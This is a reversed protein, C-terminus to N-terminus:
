SSGIALLMAPYFKTDTALLHSLERRCASERISSAGSGPSVATSCAKLSDLLLLKRLTFGPVRVLLGQLAFLRFLVEEQSSQLEQQYVSSYSSRFHQIVRQLQSSGWENKAAFDTLELSMKHIDLLSPAPAVASKISLPAMKAEGEVRGGDSLAGIATTPQEGSISDDEGKRRGGKRRRRPLVGPAEEPTGPKQPKKSFMFDGVVLLNDLRVDNHILSLRGGEGTLTASRAAAQYGKVVEGVVYGTFSHLLVAMGREVGAEEETILDDDARVQWSSEPLLNAVLRPWSNGILQLDFSKATALHMDAMGKGAVELAALCHM